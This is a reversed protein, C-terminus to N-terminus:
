QQNKRYERYLRPINKEMELIMHCMTIDADGTHYSFGLERSLLAYLSRRSMIKEPGPKWYKDIAAHVEKRAQRTEPDAPTGLPRTTGKHVGLVVNCQKHYYAGKEAWAPPTTFNTMRYFDSMKGFSLNKACVPCKIKEPCNM